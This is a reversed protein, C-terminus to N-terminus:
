LEPARTSSRVQGQRVRYLVRGDVGSIVEVQWTWLVLRPASALM